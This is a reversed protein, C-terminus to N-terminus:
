LKSKLKQEINNEIMLENEIMNDNKEFVNDDLEIDDVGLIHKYQQPAENLELDEVQEEYKIEKDKKKQFLSSFGLKVKTGISTIGKKTDLLM